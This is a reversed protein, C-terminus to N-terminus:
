RWPLSSPVVEHCFSSDLAVLGFTDLVLRLIDHFYESVPKTVCVLLLIWGLLAPLVVCLWSCRFLVDLQLTLLMQSLGWGSAWCAIGIVKVLESQLTPSSSRGSLGSDERRERRGGFPEASGYSAERDEDAKAASVAQFPSLVCFILLLVYTLWSPVFTAGWPLRSDGRFHDLKIVLMVSQSFLSIGVLFFWPADVEPQKLMVALFMYVAGLVILPLLPYVVPLSPWHELKLLLLGLAIMLLVVYGHGLFCIKATRFLVDLRFDTDADVEVNGTAVLYSVHVWVIVAVTFVIFLICLSVSIPLLVVWWPLNHYVDGKVSALVLTLGVAIGVLRIFFHPLYLWLSDGKRPSARKGEAQALLPEFSGYADRSETTM